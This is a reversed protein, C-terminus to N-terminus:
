FTATAVHEPDVAQSSNEEVPHSDEHDQTTSCEDEDVHEEEKEKDAAQKTKEFFGDDEDDADEHLDAPIQAIVDRVLEHAEKVTDTRIIKVHRGKETWADIIVSPFRPARSCGLLSWLNHEWEWEVRAIVSIINGRMFFVPHSKQFLIVTRM